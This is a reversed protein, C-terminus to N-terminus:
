LVTGYSPRSASESTNNAESYNGGKYQKQMQMFIQDYKARLKQTSLIVTSWFNDKVVFALVKRFEEVPKNDVRLIYDIHICWKFLEKDAKPVKANPNLKLIEDALYKSSKYEIGDVDFSKVPKNTKKNNDFNANTTAIDTAVFINKDSEKSDKVKSDKVKSQTNIPRNIMNIPQYISNDLTSIDIKHKSTSEPIETLWYEKIIEINLRELTVRIYNDQIEKSTLVKFKEFISRDFFGRKLLEYVVDKVLGYLGKDGVSLAFLLAYDDNFEIYYSERYIKGLLRNTIAEGQLGFRANVFQYATDEYFDVLLPFYDIGKKLKRGM